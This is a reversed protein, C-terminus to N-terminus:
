SGAGPNFLEALEGSEMFCWRTQVKQVPVPPRRRHHHPNESDPSREWREWRLLGGPVSAPAPPELGVPPAEQVPFPPQSGPEKRNRNPGMGHDTM